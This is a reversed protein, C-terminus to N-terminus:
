GLEGRLEEAAAEYNALDDDSFLVFRVERVPSKELAGAVTRLAIRSARDIPFRYAGTSISPFAV